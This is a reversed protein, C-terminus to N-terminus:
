QLVISDLAEYVPREGTLHSRFLTVTTIRGCAGHPMPLAGATLDAARMLTVHPLFTKGDYPLGEDSLAARVDRALAQFGEAGGEGDNGCGRFGQWLTATRRRGFSGLDGLAVEFSAHGACGRALAVQADAVRSAEVEGLFALTVHFLDAGVFRGRVCSRLEAQTEALADLVDEPLEAAIFLRM